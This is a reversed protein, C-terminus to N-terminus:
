LIDKSDDFLYEKFENMNNYYVKGGLKNTIQNAGGIIGDADGNEFSTYIANLADDFCDQYEKFYTELYTELEARFACIQRSAEECEQIIRLREQHELEKIQLTSILKHYYNSTVISGVLAGVAAGVVPIPIIAQGVGMSYGMTTFNLGKEGLNILCEQTSIKGESYKKLTDGTLMIATIVNGPVNSKSLAKLFKSSSNSLTHSVTTLEGGMIYGTTAAKGTDIVTDKIADKSSKKGNIVDVINMIGSMTLCTMGANQAAAKGASHGTDIINKISNNLDQKKLAKLAEKENKIAKEKGDKSLKVGTKNLYEDDTVFEKNSRSRKANNFKRSVVELNDSSNSSTKVDDNTLWPNNKTQEYRQELSIKHDAEALHKTWNKGYKLKAEAKTLTLVNGTYPDKVVVNSKFATNKINIKASGDDLLSRNYKLPKSFKQAATQISIKISKLAAFNSGIITSGNKENESDTDKISNKKKKLFNFM